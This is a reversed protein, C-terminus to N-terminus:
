YDMLYNDFCGQSIKFLKNRLKSKYERYADNEIFSLDIPVANLDRKIKFMIEKVGGIVGNLIKYFESKYIFYTLPFGWINTTNYKSFENESFKM